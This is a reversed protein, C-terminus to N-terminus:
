SLFIVTATSSIVGSCPIQLEECIFILMQLACFIFLSIIVQPRNQFSGYQRYENFQVILRYNNKDLESLRKQIINQLYSFSGNRQIYM